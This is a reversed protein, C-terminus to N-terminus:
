SLKKKCSELSVEAQHIVKICSLLSEALVCGVMSVCLERGGYWVRKM